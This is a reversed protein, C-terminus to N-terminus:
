VSVYKLIRGQFAPYCIFQLVRLPESKELLSSPINALHINLGAGQKGQMILQPQTM